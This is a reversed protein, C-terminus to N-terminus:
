SIKVLDMVGVQASNAAEVYVELQPPATNEFTGFVGLRGDNFLLPPVTYISNRALVGPRYGGGPFLLRAGLLNTGFVDLGVVQYVGGPLTQDITIPGSAWSGVVGTIAGTFRVRYEQGGRPNVRGFHLMLLAYMVQTGADTHIVDVGLADNKRPAIGFEGFDAVNAPSPITLANNLPYIEPLAVERAAATNIRARSINTGGAAAIRIQTSEPALFNTGDSAIQPDNVRTMATFATVGTAISARM